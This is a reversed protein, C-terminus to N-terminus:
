QKGQIERKLLLTKGIPFTALPTFFRGLLQEPSRALEKDVDGVPCSIYPEVWAADEPLVLCFLLMFDACLKEDGCFMLDSLQPKSGNTTAVAAKIVATAQACFLFFFSQSLEACRENLMKSVAEVWLKSVETRLLSDAMEPKRASVLSVFDTSSKIAGANGVNM